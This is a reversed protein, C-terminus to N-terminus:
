RRIPHREFFGWMLESASIDQNIHGLGLRKESLVMKGGPWTHGGDKLTWLIIENDDQCPRYRTMVAQGIKQTESPTQPCKNHVIWFSFNEKVSKHDLKAIGRPGIGGEYPANQDKLGHFHIISMPKTPRPNEMAITAAVPAIAAIRHPLEVALRYSMQAGNSIGTAYVKNTDISFFKALDDLLADVFGVDDINNKVASSCCLGANWVFLRDKYYPSSPTGAPYVAIFNEKDAIKDLGSQYRHAAPYSGGGHFDLVVALPRGAEYGVPVHLEYFREKGGVPIKRGYDGPGYNRQETIWVLPIRYDKGGLGFKSYVSHIRKFPENENGTVGMPLFLCILFTLIIKFNKEM